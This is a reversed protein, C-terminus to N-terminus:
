QLLFKAGAVAGFVGYGGQVTSFSPRYANPKFFLSSTSFYAEFQKDYAFVYLWGKLQEQGKAKELRILTEGQRNAVVRDFLFTSDSVFRIDYIFATSDALLAFEISSPGQKLSGPIIAPINPVLCSSHVEFTDYRCTYTWRDGPEVAMESIGYRGNTLYKPSYVRSSGSIPYRSLEIEAGEIVLSDYKAFVHVLQQVEFFHNVTDLSEGAKMIGFVNLGPVFANEDLEPQMNIGAYFEGLWQCSAAGFVLILM